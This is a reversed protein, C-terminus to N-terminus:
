CEAFKISGVKPTASHQADKVRNYFLAIDGYLTGDLFYGKAGLELAKIKEADVIGTTSPVVGQAFLTSLSFDIIGARFGERCTRPHWCQIKESIQLITSCGSRKPM